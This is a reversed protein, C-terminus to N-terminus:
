PNVVEFGQGALRQELEAVGKEAALTEPLDYFEDLVARATDDDVVSSYWHVEDGVRTVHSDFFPCCAHERAALSQVWEQVGDGDDGARFRFRIGEGTRERGALHGAFLRAYEALREEGTDPATSMDCVVAAGPVATLHQEM